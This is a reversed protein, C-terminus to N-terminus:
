RQICSEDCSGFLPVSKCFCFAHLAAFILGNQSVFFTRVESFFVFSLPISVIFHRYKKFFELVMYTSTAFSRFRFRYCESKAWSRRQSENPWRAVTSCTKIEPQQLYLHLRQLTIIWPKLWITSNWNQTYSVPWLLTHTHTHRTKRNRHLRAISCVTSGPRQVVQRQVTWVFLGAWLIWHVTMSGCPRGKGEPRRWLTRLKPTQQEDAPVNKPRGLHLTTRSWRHWASSWSDQGADKFWHSWPILCLDDKPGFFIHNYVCIM